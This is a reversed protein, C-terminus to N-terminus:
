KTLVVPLSKALETFADRLEAENDAHFHRGGTTEAVTTLDTQVAGPLFSITHIVINADRADGACLVPSRGMNWQGDTMLVIIKKALPRDSSKLVSIAEDLGASMETGGLMVKVSKNGMASRLGSYDSSLTADRLIKKSTQGTYYYEASSTTIESAWTVLGIRPHPQIGEVIGLYDDVARRLSAWRSKTAHPPNKIETQWSNGTPYVWDRGSLDFCMSHSRDICLLVDQQYVTAVAQESPQYKGQGIMGAFFLKVSGNSNTDNLSALVQVSNYPTVNKQFAWEGTKAQTTNGFVVDQTAIQLPKGAVKNLAAITQAATAAQATDQTRLLAEAAAKAAADTAVRLETRTLQMYATDVSLITTALLVLLGVAALVVIIGRRSRQNNPLSLVSQM